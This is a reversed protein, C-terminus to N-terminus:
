IFFPRVHRFQVFHCCKLLRSRVELFGRGTDLTLDEIQLNPESLSLCVCCSPSISLFISNSDSLSLTLSVNLSFCGKMSMSYLYASLYPLLFSSFSPLYTHSLILSLSLSLSLSVFLFLNPPSLFLSLLYFTFCIPELYLSTPPISVFM